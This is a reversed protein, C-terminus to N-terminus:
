GRPEIGLLARLSAAQGIRAAVVEQLMQRVENIQENPAVQTYQLQQRDSLDIAMAGVTTMNTEYHNPLQFPQEVLPFFMVVKAGEQHYRLLNEVTDLVGPRRLIEISGSPLSVTDMCLRGDVVKGM